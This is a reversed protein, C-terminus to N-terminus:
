IRWHADGVAGNRHGSDDREDKNGKAETMEEAYVGRYALYDIVYGTKQFQQWNKDEM